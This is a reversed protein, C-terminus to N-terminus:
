GRGKPAEETDLVTLTGVSRAVKGDDDHMFITEARVTHLLGERRNIIRYVYTLKRGHQSTQARKWAEITPGFDAHYIAQTYGEGLCEDFTLGTLAKYAANVAVVEGRGDCIYSPRDDLEFDARQQESLTRVTSEIRRVADNMSGGSNPTVQRRIEDLVQRFEGVERRLESVQARPRGAYWALLKRRFGWATALATVAAVIRGPWELLTEFFDNM